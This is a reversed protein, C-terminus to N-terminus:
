QQHLISGLYKYALVVCRHGTWMIMFGVHKSKRVIFVGLTKASVASMNEAVFVLFGILMLIAFITYLGISLHVQQVYDSIIDASVSSSNTKKYYADLEIKHVILKEMQEYMAKWRVFLGHQVFIQTWWKLEDMKSNLFFIRHFHTQLPRKVFSCTRPYSIAKALNLIFIQHSDTTILHKAYMGDVKSIDILTETLDASWKVALWKSANQVYRDRKEKDIEYKFSELHGMFKNSFGVSGSDELGIKYGRDLLQTTTAIANTSRPFYLEITLHNKYENGLYIVCLGILINMGRNSKVDKELAIRAFEAFKDLFAKICSVIYSRWARIIFKNETCSKWTAVASCAALTLVICVWTILSFPSSIIIPRLRSIDVTNDCYVIRNKNTDYVTGSQEWIGSVGGLESIISGYMGVMGVTKVRVSFNAYKQLHQLAIDTCYCPSYHMKLLEEKRWRSKLCIPYLHWPSYGDWELRPVLIQSRISLPLQRNYISFSKDTIPALPKGLKPVAVFNPFIDREGCELFHYFLRRPSRFTDGRVNLVCKFFVLLIASHKWSTFEYGNKWIYVGLRFKLKTYSHKDISSDVLISITCQEFFSIVPHISMSRNQMTSLTPIIRGHNSTLIREAVDSAAHDVMTVLTIHATCISSSEPPDPLKFTHNPYKFEFQLLGLSCGLMNIFLFIFYCM